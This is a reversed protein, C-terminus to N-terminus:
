KDVPVFPLTLVIRCGTTYASDVQLAGGMKGAIARAVSLGLGSGQEFYDLKKFREFVEEQQQLPIGTGTDTVSYRIVGEIGFVVCEVRICGEKTFKISNHLLNSLIKAVQTPNTYIEREAETAHYCLEVEKQQSGQFEGVAAQCCSHISDPIDYPLQAIQDVNSLELVDNFLRLLYNSNVTILSTYEQTEPKEYYEVLVQSFGVIANLPTRVEHTINQIFHSKLRSAEEAQDRAKRLAESNQLLEQNQQLVMQRSTRLQRNLHTIRIMFAFVILLIFLLAGIAWYTTTLRRNQLDLQLYQKEQELQRLNLLGNIEDASQQMSRKRVSDTAHIFERYYEAAAARDNKKWYIDGKRNLTVLKTEFSPNRKSITDIVALAKEYEGVSMYYRMQSERLYISYVALERSGAFLSELKNLEERAKAPEDMRIYYRLYCQTMCLKQYATVTDAKNLREQAKQLAQKAEEVRNLQMMNDIMSTYYVLLNPDDPRIKEVIEILKQFNLVTQEPNSQMLHINAMAKYCESIGSLYNESQAERLMNQAEMLAYSPMGSKIYFAILRSGWAFYYYEPENYKRSIKKVEEVLELIKGKDKQFYYYDLEVQKALIQFHTNGAHIARNRLTDAMKLVDPAHLKAACKNFYQLLAVDEKAQVEEKGSIGAVLNLQFICIFSLLLLIRSMTLCM